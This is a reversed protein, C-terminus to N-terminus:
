GERFVVEGGEGVDARLEVDRVPGREVLWRALPTVVRREITRQLPRAGYRRDYGERALSEVLAPTWSLRVRAKELGERLAVQGLEKSALALVSERSLPRFTVVADLRNFFEPRFFSLAEASYSPEREPKFGPADKAEAGLNSTMVLVASRFSTTRGFRDALRGEDFVGLLLDFVEPAAKEIEDFLVVSFPQERLRRALGGAEGGGGGDGLGDPEGLLREAADGGAYESMDFRVLRREAGEGHGFFYRALAKALETKGVGTPGCFLLVGLPRAPDNMGAKFTTVLGAAARCAEEQGIVQARFEALVEDHGLPVEDRLFLEPLGTRLVFADVVDEATLAKARRRGAKELAAALFAAARGPFAQYPAFRAFLRQVRETVGHEIALGRDRTAAEAVRDLIDLATRRDPEEIRVLEFAEVFGPLLRRCADVERPTAEAVMRVEGRRLYPLFFAALSDVPGHGGLRVLDLLSDVCLAGDESALEEIVAECREQWQGLYKMGALLRAARTLWFRHRPGPEGGEAREGGSEVKRVAEALTATKGVGTEGVLLLSAKERGLRRALATVEADRGWAKTYQRRVAREGLPEAVTALTAPASRPAGKRRRKGGHVTLERLEVSRPPLYPALAAPTSGKLAEQVAHEVFRRLSGAEYYHFRLGLTPLSAVRLGGEQRGYVCPVRLQIPEECPFVREGDRYEPWVAVSFELLRPEEFDPPPRDEEERAEWAIFAELQEMASEPTSGVAAVNRADEVLAATYSGSPDEWVLVPYRESPM